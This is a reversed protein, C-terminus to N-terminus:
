RRATLMNRQGVVRIREVGQLQQNSLYRAVTIERSQQGGGGSTQLPPAVRFVFSLEGNVPEGDRQELVLGGQWFGPSQTIGTARVIVGGPTPDLNLSAVQPVLPRDDVFLEEEIPVLTEPRDNSSFWNTPNLRSESWGRSCGSLVVCLVVCVLLRAFM